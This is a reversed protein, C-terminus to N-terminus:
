FGILFLFERFFFLLFILLLGKLYGFELGGISFVVVLCCVWWVGDVVVM